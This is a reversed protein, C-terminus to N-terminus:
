KVFNRSSYFEVENRSRRSKPVSKTRIKRDQSYNNIQILDDKHMSHKKDNVISFVCCILLLLIFIVYLNKKSVKLNRRIRQMVVNFISHFDEDASLIHILHASHNDKNNKTVGRLIEIKRSDSQDMSLVNVIDDDDSHELMGDSCMYFYDGPRIDTLFSLDAKIRKDQHPMMAKTIVNKQSFSKAEEKTLEGCAVLENVLSHDKTVFIIKKESPRVQYIRSDGIHAVTVSDLDFKIFSLTTGMKKLSATDNADLADYAANLASNFDADSHNNYYNSMSLCVTKSAIEGYNHGGMGDCLIFLDNNVIKRGLEPYISDEQNIRQGIEQLSIYSTQIKM